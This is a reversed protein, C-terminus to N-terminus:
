SSLFHINGMNNLLLRLISVKECNLLNKTLTIIYHKNRAIIEASVKCFSILFCFFFQNFIVYNQRNQARADFKKTKSIPTWWIYAM